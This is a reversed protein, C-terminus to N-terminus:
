VNRFLAIAALEDNVHIDFLHVNSTALEHNVNPSVRLTFPLSPDDDLYEFEDHFQQAIRLVADPFTPAVICDFVPALMADLLDTPRRIDDLLCEANEITSFTALIM